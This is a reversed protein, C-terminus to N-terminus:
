RTKLPKNNAIKELKTGKFMSQLDKKPVSWSSPYHEFNSASEFMEFMDDVNSVNWKNLPRLKLYHKLLKLIVFEKEM